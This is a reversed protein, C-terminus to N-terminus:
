NGQITVDKATTMSSIGKVVAAVVALFIAKEYDRFSANPNLTYVSTVATAIVFPLSRLFSRFGVAQKSLANGLM